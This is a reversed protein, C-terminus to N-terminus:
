EVRGAALEPQKSSRLALYGLGALAAASAVKQPTSMKNVGNWCTTCTDRVSQPLQHYLKQLSAFEM